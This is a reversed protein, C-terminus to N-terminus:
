IPRGDVGPLPAGLYGQLAAWAIETDADRRHPHRLLRVFLAIDTLEWRQRYLELDDLPVERGTRRRYDQVVMRDVAGSPSGTLWWLDRAAPALLVTDWDILAPGGATRLMNDPKPEGHTIVWPQAGRRCATALRDYAALRHRLETATAALLERCGASFPGADWGGDLSELAAALDPRAQIALDDRRAHQEAVPTAAHLRALMTLAPGPPGDAPWEAADLHPFVTVAYGGSPARDAGRDQGAVVTLPQGDRAPIPAVVFELGARDRLSIATTMAARLVALREGDAGLADATVFYRAGGPTTVTWHHSGYGVAAYAIRGCRIGWGRLLADAVLADSLDAPPVYM